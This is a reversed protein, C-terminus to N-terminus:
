PSLGERVTDQDRGHHVCILPAKQSSLSSRLLRQMTVGVTCWTSTSWSSGYLWSRHRGLMVLPPWGIRGDEHVPPSFHFMVGKVLRPHMPTSAVPPRSRHRVPVPVRRRWRQRSQVIVGLSLLRSRGRYRDSIRIDVCYEFSFLRDFM